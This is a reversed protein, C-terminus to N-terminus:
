RMNWIENSWALMRKAFHMASDVCTAAESHIYLDTSDAALLADSPCSATHRM